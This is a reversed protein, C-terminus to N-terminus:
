KRNKTMHAEYKLSTVTYEGDITRVNPQVFPIQKLNRGRKKRKGFLSNLNHDIYCVLFVDTPKKWRHVM